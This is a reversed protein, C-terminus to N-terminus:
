ERRQRCDSSRAQAAPSPTHDLSIDSFDRNRRQQISSASCSIANWNQGIVHRESFCPKCDTRQRQQACEDNNLILEADPDVIRRHSIRLEGRHTVKHSEHCSNVCIPLCLNRAQRARRSFLPRFADTAGISGSLACINGNATRGNAQTLPPARHRVTKLLLLSFARKMEAKWHSAPYIPPPSGTLSPFAPRFDSLRTHAM